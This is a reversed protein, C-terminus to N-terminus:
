RARPSIPSEREHDDGSPERNARATPDDIAAADIKLGRAKSREARKIRVAEGISVGAFLVVVGLALLSIVSRLKGSVQQSPTPAPTILLAKILYRSDAGYVTQLNRLQDQMEKAVLTTTRTADTETPGTGTVALLRGGLSFENSPGVTYNPGGGLGVVRDRENVGSMRQSLIAVVASQDSFNLYPNNTNLKALSPDTEFQLNTPLTPNVLTYTATTQFISPATLYAYSCGGLTVLLIVLTIYKQRLLTRAIGLVNM